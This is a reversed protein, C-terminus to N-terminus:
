CCYPFSAVVDKLTLNLGVNCWSPKVVIWKKWCKTPQDEIWLAGCSSPPKLQINGLLCPVFISIRIFAM